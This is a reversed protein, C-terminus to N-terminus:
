ELTTKDLLGVESLRDWAKKVMDPKDKFHPKAGALKEFVEEQTGRKLPWYAICKLYHLSALLEAWVEPSVNEGEPVAWIRGAKRISKEAASTLEYEAYDENGLQLEEKLAFAEDTLAPCYPGRLYWNYRYGLDMRALQVLYIRKQLSLRKPFTDLELSGLGIKDLILKLLILKKTM